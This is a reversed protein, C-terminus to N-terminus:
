QFKEKIIKKTYKYENDFNEKLHKIVEKEIIHGFIPIRVELNGELRRELKDEIKEIYSTVAECKFLNTLYHTKIKTKLIKTERDFVSDEIWTLMKPKLIHQLVKPIEGHACWEFKWKKYRGDCSESQELIKQSTVNPLTTPDFAYEETLFHVIKDFPGDFTHIIRFKM